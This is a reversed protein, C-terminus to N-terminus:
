QAGGKGAPANGIRGSSPVSLGLGSWGARSINLAANADRHDNHGCSSCSFRKGILKHRSGCRSCDQSTYAPNVEIVPVGRLACKDERANTVRSHCSRCLCTLNSLQNAEAEDMLDFWSRIHHVDMNRGAEAATKGCKQCTNGDRERVRRKISLWGKGRFCIASSGGRWLHNLSGSNRGIRSASMKARREDSLHVGKRAAVSAAVGKTVLAMTGRAIGEPTRRARLGALFRRYGQTKTDTRRAAGKSMKLRRIQSVKESGLVRVLLASITRPSCRYLPALSRATADSKLWADAIELEPLNLKTPMAEEMQSSHSKTGTRINESKGRGKRGKRWATWACGGSQKEEENVPVIRLRKRYYFSFKSTEEVALM